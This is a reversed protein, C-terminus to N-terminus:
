APAPPAVARSPTCRTNEMSCCKLSGTSSANTRTMALPCPTSASATRRPAGSTGSSALLDLGLGLGLPFPAVASSAGGVGGGTDNVPVNASSQEPISTPSVLAEPLQGDFRVGIGPLRPTINSLTSIDRCARLMRAGSSGISAAPPFPPLPFGALAGALPEGSSSREVSGPSGTAMRVSSSFCRRLGITMVGSLAFPMGSAGAVRWRSSLRQWGTFSRTAHGGFVTGRSCVPNTPGQFNPASVSGSASGTHEFTCTRSM